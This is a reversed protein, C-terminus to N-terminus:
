IHIPFQILKDLFINVKTISFQSSILLMLYDSQRERGAIVLLPKNIKFKSNSSLNTQKISM